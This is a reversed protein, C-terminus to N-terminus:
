EEITQMFAILDDIIDIEVGESALLEAEREPIRTEYGQTEMLSPEAFTDVIKANPDMISELIYADDVTITTGDNLAEERGYIGAWTPGAGGPDGTLNHCGSCGLETYWIEGREEPTMESYAPVDLREAVWADFESQNVVRVDALMGSHDFGCIEACRVTYDGEETPTIRLHTLTHPVLDQKVRFEPIWFSHLVDRSEMELLIPQDVPLVLIASTINEQEPYEFQWSWQQGYVKVTMENAQKATLANLVSVGWIGFGIVVAVPIITWIIELATHGHVHRGPEDDGEKRRFFAISYLMFVMILSFLFAILWFHVNFMVDIHGAQTSAAEPLRYLFALAGRLGLTGLIVLVTVAIYHKAKGM